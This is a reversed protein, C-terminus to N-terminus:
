VSITQRPNSLTCVACIACISWCNDDTNRPNYHCCINKIVITCYNYISVIYLTNPVMDNYLFDHNLSLILSNDISKIFHMTIGVAILTYSLIILVISIVNHFNTYKSTNIWFITCISVIEIFSITYIIRRYIDSINCMYILIIFIIMTVFLNFTIIFILFFLLQYISLDSSIAINFITNRDLQMPVITQLLTFFLITNVVITLLIYVINSFTPDLIKKDNNHIIILIIGLATLSVFYFLTTVMPNTVEVVLTEIIKIKQDLCIFLLSTAIIMPLLHLCYTAFITGLHRSREFLM